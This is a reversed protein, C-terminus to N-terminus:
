VFGYKCQWMHNRTPFSSIVIICILVKAFITNLKNVSWKKCIYESKYIQPMSLMPINPDPNPSQYQYKKDILVGSFCLKRTTNQLRVKPLSIVKLDTFM